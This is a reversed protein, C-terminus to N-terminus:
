QSPEKSYGCCINQNLFLFIIKLYTSKDPPRLKGMVYHFRKKQHASVCGLSFLISLSMLNQYKDRMYIHAEELLLHQSIWCHKLVLIQDSDDDIDLRGNYTYVLLLLKPLGVFKPLSTQAKMIRCHSWFRMHWTM